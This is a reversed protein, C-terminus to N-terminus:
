AAKRPQELRSLAPWTIVGAEILTSAWWLRGRQDIQLCPKPWQANAIRRKITSESIGTLAILDARSVVRDTPTPTPTTM